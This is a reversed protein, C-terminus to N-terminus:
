DSSWASLINSYDDTWLPTDPGAEAPRWGILKDAHSRDRVLVMWISPRMGEDFEKENPSAELALPVVGLATAVKAIIPELDLMRNSIHLAIIGEPALKKLYLQMAEQTLLHMPIADSSFADLVLLDFEQDEREALTLRADGRVIDIEAKADELFTFFEKNRAIEIVM